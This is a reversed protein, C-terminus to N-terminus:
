PMDRLHNWLVVALNLKLLFCNFSARTVGRFRHRHCYSQWFPKLFSSLGCINQQSKRTSRSLHAMSVVGVYGIALFWGLDVGFQLYCDVLPLLLFFRGLCRRWPTTDCPENLAESVSAIVLSWWRWPVWFNKLDHHQGHKSQPFYPVAFTRPRSYHVHIQHQYM